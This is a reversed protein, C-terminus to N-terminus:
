MGALYWLVVVTGFPVWPKADSEVPPQAFPVLLAALLPPYHYHWGHEDTVRYLDEDVHIAWAARLYVTLDTKRTQQMVSRAFIISLLLVSWRAVRDTRLGM